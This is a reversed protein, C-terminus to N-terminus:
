PDGDTERQRFNLHTVSPSQSSTTGTRNFNLTSDSVVNLANLTVGFSAQM